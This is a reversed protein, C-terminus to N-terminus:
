LYIKRLLDDLKFLITMGVPAFRLPPVQPEEEVWGERGHHIVLVSIGELWGSRGDGGAFDEDLSPASCDNTRISLRMWSAKNNGAATTMPQAM